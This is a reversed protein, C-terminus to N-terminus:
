STPAPAKAGELLRKMTVVLNKLSVPKTLYDNAGAALCRERDGTMALATLAIMHTHAVEPIARIERMAELGDKDPMQVDMLVIDPHEAVTRDVAEQGDIAFILRFGSRELYDRLLLTNTESDDAILVLPQDAASTATADQEVVPAPKSPKPFFRTEIDPVDDPMRSPLFFSFRSGEGLASDLGVHGGHLEAMRRVLALGLGTGNYERSLSSDLQVFSRFLKAQNEPAIGIGTDWVEFRVGAPDEGAHVDIPGGGGGRPPL